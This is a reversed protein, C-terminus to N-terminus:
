QVSAKRNRQKSMNTITLTNNINPRDRTLLCLEGQLLRNPNGLLGVIMHTELM